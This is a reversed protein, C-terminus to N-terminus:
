MRYMLLHGGYHETADNCTVFIEFGDCSTLSFVLINKKLYDCAKNTKITKCKLSCWVCGMFVRGKNSFLFYFYKPLLCIM